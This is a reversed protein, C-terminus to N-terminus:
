FCGKILHKLSISDL